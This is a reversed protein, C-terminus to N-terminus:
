GRHQRGPYHGAAGVVDHRGINGINTAEYGTAQQRDVDNLVSAFETQQAPVPRERASVMRLPPSDCEPRHAM